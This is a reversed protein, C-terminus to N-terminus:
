ACRGVTCPCPAVWPRPRSLCPPAAARPPLPWPGTITVIICLAPSVAVAMAGAGTAAVAAGGAVPAAAPAWAPARPSWTGPPQGPARAAVRGWLGHHLASAHPRAPPRRVTCARVHVDGKGSWSAAAAGPAGSKRWTRASQMVGNNSNSAPAVCVATGEGTHRSLVRAPPQLWQCGQCDSSSEQLPSCCCCTTPLKM